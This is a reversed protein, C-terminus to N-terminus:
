HLPEAGVNDGLFWLNADTRCFLDIEDPSLDFGRQFLESVTSIRDVAFRIRLKEETLLTDIVMGIGVQSMADGEKPAHGRSRCCGPWEAGADLRIGRLM